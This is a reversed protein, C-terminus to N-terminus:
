RWGPPPAGGWQQPPGTPPFPPQVLPQDVPLIEGSLIRKRATLYALLFLVMAVVGLVNSLYSYAPSVDVDYDEADITGSGPLSSAVVSSSIISPIIYLLFAGWLLYRKDSASIEYAFFVIGLAFAVTGAIVIGFFIIMANRFQAADIQADAPDGGEPIIVASAAGVILVVVAVVILIIALLVLILGATVKTQHKKGFESRGAYMEYLFLIFFILIVILIIGVSCCIAYAAGASPVASEAPLSVALMIVDIILVLLILISGWKLGAPTHLRRVVPPPTVQTTPPRTEAYLDDEGWSLNETGNM